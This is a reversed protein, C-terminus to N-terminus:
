LISVSPHLRLLMNVVCCLLLMNVLAAQWQQFCACCVAPTVLCTSCRCRALGDAAWCLACVAYAFVAADHVLQVTVWSLGCEVFVLSCGWVLLRVCITLSPQTGWAWGSCLFYSQLRGFAAAAFCAVNVGQWVLAVQWTRLESVDQQQSSCCWAYQM